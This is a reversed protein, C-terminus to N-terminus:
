KGRTLYSSSIYRRIQDSHIPVSSVGYAERRWGSGDLATFAVVAVPDFVNAEDGNPWNAYGFVDGSFRHVPITVEVLRGRRHRTIMFLPQQTQYDIYLLLRDFGQGSQRAAGEIVVAWRVDWRDSGVSLGSPGFNRNKERPYGGRSGNLPALVAREEVFRWEYANPRMALETFGRRLGETQHISLASTPNLAGVGLGSNPAFDGAGVLGGGVGGGGSDGAVRYRPTYMGDTWTSAARRIKRMTPVYVFTDDPESFRSDAEHPRLQTWALHRVAYPEDFRGGAVFLSNKAVDLTHESEELDARHATQILYFWGEYTLARGIAGPLDVIRFEGIPGAGRYRYQSNWAWKLAAQPDNKAILDPPFPLGAVYNSLNGDADLVAHGAFAETARAYFRSAPYRRHCPGIELRMGEHFFHERNSWIEMPLLERLRLLDEEGLVMGERLLVASADVAPGTVNGRIAPCANEPPLDARSEVSALLALALVAARLRSAWAFPRDGTSQAPFSPSARM